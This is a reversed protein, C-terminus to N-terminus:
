DETEEDNSYYYHRYYHYYYYYSGYQKSYDINHLVVGIINADVNKLLEKGQQAIQRKTEGSKIVLLTADIETSLMVADAVSVLPPSDFILMDYQQALEEILKGMRESSLLAGPNSVHSGCPFLYLNEVETPRIFGELSQHNTIPSQHNGEQQRSPPDGSSAPSLGGSSAEEALFDTLGPTRDQLFIRHTRPRRLDTDILLVSLGSQAMTIALNSATATKGEGPAASTILLSKPPNDVDSYKINASLTRYNELAPSKSEAYLIIHSLLRELRKRYGRRHKVRRRVPSQHSTVPSQYLPPQHTTSILPTQSKQKEARPNSADNQRSLAVGSGNSFEDAALVDQERRSLVDEPVDFPEIAPITGMVPLQLFREVDEKRKISDDLYELFFATGIGLVLGLMVGFILTQKVKPSIPSTPLAARDIFSLGATKMQKLLRMEEYKDLLLMFTQEYVRAQRELRTLQVQKSILEPHEDKFKAIRDTILNVKQEFGRLQVTLSVSQQVLSQLEEVPDLSTAGQKKVLEALESKLREQLLAIKEKLLVIDPNEETLTELKTDLELQLDILKSQLQDVQTTLAAAAPSLSFAKKKEAILSTVAQLQSKALEIDTETQSLEEQMNGLKELLGRSTGKSSTIILGEKERFTNLEEESQQLKKDVLDMQQKLFEIGQELEFNKIEVTKSIYVNAAVNALGQAREPTHSNGIVELISTEEPPVSLSIGNIIQSTSFELNSLTLQGKIEAVSESSKLLREQSRISPGSSLPLGVLNAPIKDPQERMLVARTEYVPTARKIYYATASCTILFILLVIWKRSLVIRVYDRLNVEPKPQHSSAVLRNMKTETQEQKM